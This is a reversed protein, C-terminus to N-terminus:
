NNSWVHGAIKIMHDLKAWQEEETVDNGEESSAFGCQPSLALNELPIYQSAEQIRDKLTDPDELEAFKSTIVGLVIEIDRRKINKLPEFGGSRDNDYELFFADYKLKDFVPAVYEYGGDAHIHKSRFNGRCMHVTAILDEPKDQLAYNTTEVIVNLLKKLELGTTNVMMSSFNPDTFTTLTTDDFQIYRCGAEYLANVMERYAIGLDKFMETSDPYIEKEKENVARYAIVSPAPITFKAVQTGDGYKDIAAKLFKFHEVMYHNNFTIKDVIEYSIPQTKIGDSFELGSELQVFEIGGLGVFFDHHWMIRRFDGDTIAKLGVEIQKQVLKEIETDEVSKLAAADIKKNQYDERAKKLTETRLLSGVHDAKLPLKNAM